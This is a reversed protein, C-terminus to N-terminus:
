WNLSWGRRLSNAYEQMGHRSNIGRQWDCTLHCFSSKSLLRLKKETDDSPLTTEHVRTLTSGSITIYTKFKLDYRQFDFTLIPQYKWDTSNVANISTGCGCTMSLSLEWKHLIYSKSWGSELIISDWGLWFHNTHEQHPSTSYLTRKSGSPVRLNM